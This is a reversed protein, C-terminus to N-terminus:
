CSNPCLFMCEFFLVLFWSVSFSSPVGHFLAGISRGWGKCLLQMFVKCKARWAGFLVALGFEFGLACCLGPLRDLQNGYNAPTASPLDVIARRLLRLIQEQESGIDLAWHSWLPNAWEVAYTLRGYHLQLRGNPLLQAWVKTANFSNELELAETSTQLSTLSFSVSSAAAM